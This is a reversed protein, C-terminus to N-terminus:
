EIVLLNEVKRAKLGTSEEFVSIMTEYNDIPIPITMNAKISADKAIRYDLGYIENIKQLIEKLSSDELLVFGDRWSSPEEESTNRKVTKKTKQSYSVLEGPEMLIPESAEELNLKVKGEELFVKTEEHHTNVNFSTGLVEVVLDDTLVCFKQGTKQKKTVHFFAEGNLWVKRNEEDNWEEQFSISSNANLEVTSGDPLSVTRQEAFATTIVTLQSDGSSPFLWLGIGLALVLTAAVASIGIMMERRKLSVSRFFSKRKPQESTKVKRLTADFIRQSVAAEQYPYDGLTEWLKEMVRTYDRDPHAAVLDLLQLLEDRSCKGEFLKKILQEDSYNSM